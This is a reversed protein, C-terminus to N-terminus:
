GESFFDTPIKNNGIHHSLWSFNWPELWWWAAFFRRNRDDGTFGFWRQWTPKHLFSMAMLITPFWARDTDDIKPIEKVHERLGIRLSLMSSDYWYSLRWGFYELTINIGYAGHITYKRLFSPSKTRAFTPLCELVMTRMHTMMNYSILIYPQKLYLILVYIIMLISIGLTISSLVMFFIPLSEGLSWSKPNEAIPTKEWVDTSRIGTEGPVLLRLFFTHVM